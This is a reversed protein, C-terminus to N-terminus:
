KAKKNLREINNDKRSGPAGVILTNYVSNNQIDIIDKLIHLSADEIQRAIRFNLSYIHSINKVKGNEM